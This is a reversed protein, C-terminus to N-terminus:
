GRQDNRDTGNTIDIGQDANINQVSVGTGTGNQVITKGGSKCNALRIGTARRSYKKEM